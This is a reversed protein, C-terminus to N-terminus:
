ELQTNETYEQVKSSEDVVKGDVLTTTIVKVIKRMTVETPTGPTEPPSAPKESLDGNLLRRYEAIEAELTLKIKLLDDYKEKNRYMENRLSTLEAERQSIILQLKEFERGYGSEAEGLINELGTIQAKLTELEMELSQITQRKITIEAKADDLAKTTQESEMSVVQIQSQYWAESDAKNKAILEEYETRISAVLDSIDPEKGTFVNVSVKETKMQAKLGNIEEGHNKKLFLLEETLLDTENRLSAANAEYEEKVRRLRDIDNEVAQCVVSETELKMRFDEASLRANDIQLMIAANGLTLDHIQRNLDRVQALLPNIDREVPRREELIAAIQLELERNGTELSNVKNLYRALRENLHQMTEKEDQPQAMAASMLLGASSSLNGGYVSGASSGSGLVLSRGGTSARSWSGSQVSRSSFSPRSRRHSVSGTISPM